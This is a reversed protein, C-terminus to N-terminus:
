CHSDFRKSICIHDTQNETVHDPSLWTAQHIRKHQYISGGIVFNNTACTDAFQEGNENMEGLSFQGMIQEFGRKDKGIKASFDGM